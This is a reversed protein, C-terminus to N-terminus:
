RRTASSARTVVQDVNTVTIKPAEAFTLSSSLGLVVATVIVSSKRM